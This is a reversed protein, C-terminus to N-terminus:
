EVELKFRMFEQGGPTASIPTPTRFTIIASGDGQSVPAGIRVAPTDWDVLNPSCWATIETAASLPERIRWSLTLYEHGANEPDLWRGMAPEVPQNASMPNTRTVFERLNPIGDGDYDDGPAQSAAGADFADGFIARQWLPYTWADDQGPAGGSVHSSRWNAGDAPDPHSAPNVLVLAPGSGDPPLPWPPDDRFEFEAIVGGDLARLELDEGGNSLNGSSFAGAVPLGAGYRKNFAALNNAIVMRGGAAVQSNVGSPFTFNIGITFTVGSLDITETSTNLVEIYEFATSEVSGLEAQEAPTRGPPNYHIKSIVLNVASAPTVTYFQAEDLASWEGTTNSKFRARVRTSSTIAIGPDAYQTGVVAGGVARPDTGDLTYYIEGSQGQADLTLLFGGSVTGGRQSFAPANVQPYFGRGRLQGLLTATRGPFFNTKVSNIRTNWQTLTHATPNTGWRVCDAIMANGVEVRRWEFLALARDPTLAGNNFLHKHAEDAFALRYEPSNALDEHLTEPNSYLFNDRNQNHGVVANVRNSAWSTAMMTHEADHVVFRWSEDPGRRRFARWNNARDYQLFSSLPADADGTYYIVLMYAALEAPDLYRTLASNRAGTADCGLLKFYNENSQNLRFDRALTWTAEWADISGYDLEYVYGADNDAQVVDYDEPDGGFYSAAYDEQAREQTQYIGWYQGNLYLHVPRSRTYAMGMERSLDRATVERLATHQTGNADNAWSYNQETRLDLVEFEDAGAEGHIPYSLSGAGYQGRFFLRFGHKPYGDNRSYGGRIRLGCNIQFGPGGEQPLYEVSCAREWAQGSMLANSYIGTASSTLNAQTTVISISPLEQLSDALRNPTSNYQAKLTSNFGYRMLQLNLSPSDTAPWGAPANTGTYVQNVIDAKFLYSRTNTASAIYGAKFARARIVSTASIMIPATYVTGTSSTPESSNTTYRIEAGPIACSLTLSQATTYYGHELSFQPTPVVGLSATGNAAGPTPTQFYGASGSGGPIRGYSIDDFQPPYAPSFSSIVAGGPAKLALSEGDRSLAFNTHLNAAPNARNKDSCFVVLYAGAPISVAPFTWSAGGDELQCGLLSVSGGSPNHIELWDQEEGDEDQLGVNNGALLENLVLVEPGQAQAVGLEVGWLM